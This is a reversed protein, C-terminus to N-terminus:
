NDDDGGVPKSTIGFLSTQLPSACTPQPKSKIGSSEYRVFPLIPSPLSAECTEANGQSLNPKLSASTSKESSSSADSNKGSFLDKQSFKNESSLFNSHDQKQIAKPCSNPSTAANDGILFKSIKDNDVLNQVSEDTTEDSDKPLDDTNSSRCDNGVSSNKHSISFKRLKIASIKQHKPTPKSYSSFSLNLEDHVEEEKAGCEKDNKEFAAAEADNSKESKRQM